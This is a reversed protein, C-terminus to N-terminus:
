QEIFSVTAGTVIPSGDKIIHVPFEVDSFYGTIQESAGRENTYEISVFPTKTSVAADITACQEATLANWTITVNRKIAVITGVMNGSKVRGTNTSWVKSHSIVFGDPAPSPMQVGNFKLVM